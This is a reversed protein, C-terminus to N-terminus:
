NLKLKLKVTSNVTIVNKPIFLISHINWLRLILFSVRFFLLHSGLAIVTLSHFSSVSFVTTQWKAISIEDVTRNKIPCPPVTRTLTCFAVYQSLLRSCLPKSTDTVIIHKQWPYSFFIISLSVYKIAVRQVSGRSSM